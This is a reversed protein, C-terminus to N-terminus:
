ENCGCWPKRRVDEISIENMELRDQIQSYIDKRVDNLREPTNVCSFVIGECDKCKFTIATKSMRMEQGITMLIYKEKLTIKYVPRAYV